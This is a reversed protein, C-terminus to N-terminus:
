TLLSVAGTVIHFLGCGRSWKMFVRSCSIFLFHPMFRFQARQTGDLTWPHHHTIIQLIDDSGMNINVFVIALVGLLGDLHTFTHAMKHQTSTYLGMRGERGETM